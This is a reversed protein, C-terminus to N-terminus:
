GHWMAKDLGLAFVDISNPGRSIAAPGSTFSGGLSEWGHWITGDWQGRRMTKDPGLAFVDISNPGRSVAAPGSTFSGGLSEWGHWNTQTPTAAPKTM